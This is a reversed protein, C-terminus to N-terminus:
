IIIEVSKIEIKKYARKRSKSNKETNVMVHTSPSEQKVTKILELLDINVGHNIETILVDIQKHKLTELVDEFDSSDREVSLDSQSSLLEKLYKRVIPQTDLIVINISM